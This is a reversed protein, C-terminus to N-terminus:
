RELTTLREALDAAARDALQARTALVQMDALAMAATWVAEFGDDANAGALYGARLALRDAPDPWRYLDLAPHGVFSDGFDILGSLSGDSRAFVHTPGPNSHLVVPTFGVDPLAALVLTAVRQPTADLPWCGPRTGILEVVDTFSSELRSYLAPADEDVPFLGTQRLPAAEEAHLVQLLTGVERLLAVRASGAVTLHRVARGPMRSMVIYEVDGAGDEGTPAHGYGYVRPVRGALPAALHELLRTEKALSTRPRLRHPRQMKLVVDGDLLYARAEGGSEDVERVATARVGHAAAIGLVVAESLVPDAAQPQLYVDARGM